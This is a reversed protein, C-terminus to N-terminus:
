RKAAALIAQARSAEPANPALHLFRSMDNVLLDKKGVKEAALGRYYYAYALGKNLELAKNLTELAQSAKGQLVLTVGLHYLLVPDSQNTEEVLQLFHAAAKDLEKLRQQALALQLRAASDKENAALAKEALEKARRFAKTAEEQKNALLYAEGLAVQLSAEEGHAKAADQLLKVAEPHKKEQQLVQALAQAVAPKSLAQDKVPELAERAEKTQWSLLKEQAAKVAQELLDPASEQGQAFAALFLGLSLGLVWRAGKGKSMGQGEQNKLIECTKWCRGGKLKQGAPL